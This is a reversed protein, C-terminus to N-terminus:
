DVGFLEYAGFTTPSNKESEFIEVTRSLIQIRSFLNKTRKREQFHHSQCKPFEMDQVNDYNSQLHVISTRPPHCSHSHTWQIHSLLLPLQQYNTLWTVTMRNSIDWAFKTSECLRCVGFAFHLIYLTCRRCIPILYVRECNWVDDVM